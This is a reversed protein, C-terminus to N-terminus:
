FHVPHEYQIINLLLKPKYLGKQSSMLIVPILIFYTLDIFAM